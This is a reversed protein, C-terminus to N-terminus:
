VRVCVVCVGFLVCGLHGVHVVFEVFLMAM